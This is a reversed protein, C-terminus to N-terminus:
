VIDILGETHCKSLSPQPVWEISTFWTHTNFYRISKCIHGYSCIDKSLSFPKIFSSLFRFIKTPRFQKISVLKSKVWCHYDFLLFSTQNVGFSTMGVTYVLIFNRIIFMWYAPRLIKKATLDLTKANLALKKM